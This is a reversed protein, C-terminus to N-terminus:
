PSALGDPRVELIQAGSTNVYRRKGSSEQPEFERRGIAMYIGVISSAVDVPRTNVRNRTKDIMSSICVSIKNRADGAPAGNGFQLITDVDNTM